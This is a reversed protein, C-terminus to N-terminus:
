QRSGFFSGSEEILQNYNPVVFKGWLCLKGELSFLEM